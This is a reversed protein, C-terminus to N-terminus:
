RILSFDGKFLETRGDFYEVEAIFVLVQPNMQEGNLTGDWGFAPDNIDFDNLRYVIEGWRDVIIFSNVKNVLGEPARPFFIDNVNDGNPSFGTPFFVVRDDRVLVQIFDDATCGNSSVLSVAYTLSAPPIGFTNACTDCAVYEAPTWQVVASTDGATTASLFITDGLRIEGSGSNTSMSADIFVDFVEPEIIDFVLADASCGNADEIEIQYAGAGLESWVRTNTRTGNFSIIYPGVGGVISDIRASADMENACSIPQLSVFVEPVDNSVVVEVIDSASCGNALNTATLEYLGSLDTQYRSSSDLLEGTTANSWRYDIGPTPATGLDAVRAICSLTVDAGANVQPGENISLQVEARAFDCPAPASVTYEFTYDGAALTSVDITGNIPAAGGSLNVWDGGSDQGTLLSALDVVEMDGECFSLDGTSSGALPQRAVTIALSATDPCGAVNGQTLTFLLRYTGADASTADFIGGTITGPRTGSPVATLSWDGVQPDELLDDLQIRADNNCLVGPGVLTLNPCSCDRINVSVEARQSPCSAVAATEYVLLYSGPALGIGNFITGTLAGPADPSSWTGGGGSIVLATLDLEFPDSTVDSNCLSFDPGLEPSQITQISVNATATVGINECGPNERLSAVSVVGQEDFFTFEGANSTIAFTRTVGGIVLDIEAPLLGNYQYAVRATDGECTIADSLTISPLANWIIPVGPSTDLCPDAPDVGGSGDDNGRIAAIYFTSGSTYGVNWPFSPSSSTALLNTVNTASGEYLIYVTADDGDNFGGTAAPLQVVDGACLTAGAALTPAVTECDCNPTNTYTISSCGNADVVSFSYPMGAPLNLTFIPGPGSPPLGVLTYPAQGGSATITVVALPDGSDCAFTNTAEPDENFTIQVTESTPCFAGDSSWTLIYTGHTTSSFTANPDSMSSITTGAPITWIGPGGTAQLVTSLGCLAEDPGADLAPIDRWVIPQGISVDFCPDNPDPNGTGDDSGLIYSVYYTVDVTIPAQFSFLSTASTQLVTGLTGSASTHLVYTGVDDGDLMENSVLGAQIDSPICAELLDTPMEGADTSCDCTRSGQVTTSCGNADLIVISYADGSVIPDSTFIGGTLTGSTGVTTFPPTGGTIEFTLVYDLNTSNCVEDLNVAEVPETLIIEVQDSTPCINGVSSWTLIHTGAPGSFTAGPDTSSSVSTGAPVTWTGPTGTAELTTSLGCVIQDPGADVVIGDRWVVPQGISVDFCPDNPDPNGSGDDNGIVYSVYYTVDVVVPGQFFFWRSSNTQLVTGLVDTPSTHLIYTGVDNADFVENSVLDAQISDPVCVEILVDSMLGADTTCDCTHSGQITTSCGNSDLIVISYADGSAIPNSTFTNGSIIGSTGTSIFPPTGGIIEFTLIYEQGTNDCQEDVNVADMPETLTIEVQDSTPCINGVSSWTLIHTGAPGSFTAGPDTNSSVSTGAPLTWTGPTGTADLTTSLGCVIQDPGADVVIGDRWVVPQGISVDFCPDNPDPNGNGDDTGIIYSVYYTVDVTIPGQFFFWRTANTQLVTGLVDTPSTHLVYTGVDDGDNVENSVLDAQLSDPICVEILTNSMDGAETTCSCNFSGQVTAPCGNVDLVIISYSDGSTIPNSSFLNGALTGPTGTTSYPPTGGNIEFTVTYELTANNCTENTNIVMLPDAFTVLVTDSSPCNGGFSYEFPYTGPSGAAVNTSAQTPNTISGTGDPGPLASWTGGAPNGSVTGNLACFSEDAGADATVPAEIQTTVCTEPTPGCSGTATFCVEATGGATFNLTLSGPIDTVVTAPINRIDYSFTYPGNPGTYSYTYTGNEGVCLAVPGNATPQGTEPPSETIVATAMATCTEGTRPDTRVVTLTYTGPETVTITQGTGVVGAPGLWVQTVDTGTTSGASSLDVTPNICDLNFFPPTILAFLPEEQIFLFLTTDCGTSSTPVTIVAPGPAFYDVGDFTFPEGPCVQVSDVAVISGRPTILYTVLSDCGFANQVTFSGGGPDCIYANNIFPCNPASAGTCVSDVIFTPTPDPRIIIDVCNDSLDGCFSPTASGLDAQISNYNQGVFSAPGSAFEYSIGCVRFTGPGLLTPSLTTGVFEQTITGTIPDTVVLAYGYEIPSPTFSGFDVEINQLNSFCGAQNAPSLSGGEALCANCSLITSTTTGSIQTPQNSFNTILMIFFEGPGGSNLVATENSAPDYSCSIPNGLSGCNSLADSLSTFPGWLAFDIDVAPASNLNITASGAATTSMYFWAPNPQTALCGYNNGPPPNGANTSAPFSLNNEACFETAAVCVPSQAHLQVVALELVCLMLM